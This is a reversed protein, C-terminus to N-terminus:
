LLPLRFTYVNRLAPQPAYKYRSLIIYVQIIYVQTHVVNPAYGMEAVAITDESQFTAWGNGGKHYVTDIQKFRTSPLSPKKRSGLREARVKHPIDTTELSSIRSM